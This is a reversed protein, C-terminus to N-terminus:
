EEKSSHKVHKLQFNPLKSLPQVLFLFYSLIFIKYLLIFYCNLVSLAPKRLLGEVCIHVIGSLESKSLMAKM